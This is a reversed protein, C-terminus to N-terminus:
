YETLIKLQAHFVLVRGFAARRALVDATVRFRYRTWSNMMVPAVVDIFDSILPEVDCMIAVTHTTDNHWKDLDRIEAQTPTSLKAGYGNPGGYIVEDFIPAGNLSQGSADQEQRVIWAADTLLARQADVLKGWARPQTRIKGM